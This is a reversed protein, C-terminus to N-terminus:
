KRLRVVELKELMRVSRAARKDHPSVLRLPGQPAVLPKGDSSDAVLLEGDSMGPDAEALAFVAQYGDAASALVYSAVAKGSMDNGLPAGARELVEALLVGEYRTTGADTKLTVTTRPMTKLDDLTLTYPRPVDGGVAVSSPAPQQGATLTVTACIAAMTV